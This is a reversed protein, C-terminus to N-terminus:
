ADAPHSGVDGALATNVAWYVVLLRAPWCPPENGRHRASAGPAAAQRGLVPFPRKWAELRAHRGRHIAGSRQHRERDAAGHSRPPPLPPGCGLHTRATAGSATLRCVEIKDRVSPFKSGVAKVPLQRHGQRPIESAQVAEAVDPVPAIDGRVRFPRGGSAAERRDWGRRRHHM